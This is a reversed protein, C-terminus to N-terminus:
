EFLWERHAARHSKENQIRSKNSPSYEEVLQLEKVQLFYKLSRDQTEVTWRGVEAVRKKYPIGHCSRFQGLLCRQRKQRQAIHNHERM